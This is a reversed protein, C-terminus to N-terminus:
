PYLGFATPILGLTKPEWIVGTKINLERSVERRSRVWSKNYYRRKCIQRIRGKYLQCGLMKWTNTSQKWSCKGRNAAGTLGGRHCPLGFVRGMGAYLMNKICWEGRTWWSICRRLRMNRWRVLQRVKWWSKDWIATVACAGEVQTFIM